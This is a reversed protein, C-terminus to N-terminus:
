MKRMEGRGLLLWEPSVNYDKCIYTLADLDIIKYLYEAEPNQLATKIRQYKIRNLDHDKCFGKLGSIVGDQIAMELAQFFRKQIKIAQPNISKKM